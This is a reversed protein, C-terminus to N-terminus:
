HGVCGRKRTARADDRERLLAPGLQLLDRPRVALRDDPERHDDDQDGGEDRRVDEQEVVEEGEQDRLVDHPRGGRGGRCRGRLLDGTSSDSRFSSRCGSGAVSLSAGCRSSISAAFSESSAAAWAARANRPVTSGSSSTETSSALFRRRRAPATASTSGSATSGTSAGASSGSAGAWGAAACGDSSPRRQYTMWVYEPYSFLTFVLRSCRMWDISMPSLIKWTSTGVSSSISILFPLRWGTSRLIK